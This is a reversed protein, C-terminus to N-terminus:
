KLKTNQVQKKIDRKRATSCHIKSVIKKVYMDANM